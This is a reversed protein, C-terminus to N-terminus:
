ISIISKIIELDAAMIRHWAQTREKKRFYVAESLLYSDEESINNLLSLINIDGWESHAMWSRFEKLHSRRETFSPVANSSYWARDIYSLDYALLLASIWYTIEEEMAPKHMLRMETEHQFSFGEKRLQRSWYYVEGRCHINNNKAHLVPYCAQKAAQTPISLNGNKITIIQLKAMETRADICMNVPYVFRILQILTTNPIKAHFKPSDEVYNGYYITTKNSPLNIATRFWSRTLNYQRCDDDIKFIREVGCSIGIGLVMNSAGGYSRNYSQCGFLFEKPYKALRSLTLAINESQEHGIIFVQSDCKESEVNNDPGNYICIIPVGYNRAAHSFSSICDEITNRNIFPIILVAYM